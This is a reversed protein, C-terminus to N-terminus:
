LLSFLVVSRWEENKQPGIEVSVFAYGYLTAIDKSPSRAVAEKFVM